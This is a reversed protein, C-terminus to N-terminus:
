YTVSRPLIVPIDQGYHNETVIVTVSFGNDYFSFSFSPVIKKAIATYLRAMNKVSTFTDQGLRIAMLQGSFTIYVLYRDSPGIAYDGRALPGLQYIEGSLNSKITLFMGQNTLREDINFNTSPPWISRPGLTPTIPTLSPPYATVATLSPIIKTPTFSPSLTASPLYAAILGTATTSAINSRLLRNQKVLFYGLVIFLLGFICVLIKTKFQFRGIM